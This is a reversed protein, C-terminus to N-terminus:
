VATRRFKREGIISANSEGIGKVEIPRRLTEFTGACASIMIFSGNMTSCAFSRAFFSAGIALGVSRTRCIYRAANLRGGVGSSIASAFVKRVSCRASWAALSASSRAHASKACTSKLTFSNM